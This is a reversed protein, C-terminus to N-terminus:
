FVHLSEQRGAFYHATHNFYIDIEQGYLIDMDLEKIYQKVCLELAYCTRSHLKYNGMGTVHDQNSFQGIIPGPGHGYFGIPHTYLRRGQIHESAKLARKLIENGTSGEVFQNMVIDQFEQTTKHLRQYANILSINGDDVYAMEQVDSCLGLYKVGFDCHLLDGELIIADDNDLHPYGKRRIWVTADFWPKMGMSYAKSMLYYRAQGITTTGPNINERTYCSDIIERTKLVIKKLYIMELNSRTELWRLTLLESSELTCNLAELFKYNTHSLGDSFPSLESYNAVIKKPQRDKIIRNLCEFENEVPLKRIVDLDYDTAFTSYFMEYDFNPPKLLMPQYFQGITFDPKSIIMREVESHSRYFVLITRKRAHYFSSPLFTKLCPGENYEDGIVIWMDVETEKMLDFLLTDLRHKLIEDRVKDAEQFTMIPKMYVEVILKDYSLIYQPINTNLIATFIRLKRYLHYIDNYPPM